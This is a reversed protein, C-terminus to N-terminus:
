INDDRIPRKIYSVENSNSVIKFLYFVEGIETKVVGISLISGNNSNEVEEVISALEQFRFDTAGNLYNISLLLFLLIFLIIYCIRIFM